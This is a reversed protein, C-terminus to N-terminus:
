FFRTNKTQILWTQKKMSHLKETKRKFSKQKAAILSLIIEQLRAFLLVNFEKLTETHLLNELGTELTKRKKILEPGMYHIIGSKHKLQINGQKYMQHSCRNQSCHRGQLVGIQHYDKLGKWMGQKGFYLGAKRYCPRCKARPNTVKCKAPNFHENHLYTFGGYWAAWSLRCLVEQILQWYSFRCDIRLHWYEEQHLPCLPIWDLRWGPEVPGIITFHPIKRDFSRPEKEKM